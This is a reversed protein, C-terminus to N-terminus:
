DTKLTRNLVNEHVTKKLWVNNQFLKMPSAVLLKMLKKKDFKLNAERKM